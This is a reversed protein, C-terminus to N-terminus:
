TNIAEKQSIAQVVDKANMEDKVSQKDLLEDISIQGEPPSNELKKVKIECVPGIGKAISKLSKLPRNCM